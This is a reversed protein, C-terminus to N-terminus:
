IKYGKILYQEQLKRLTQNILKARAEGIGEVEDLEIVTASCVGQLTYFADVLNDIISIPMKPIKSLIRYGKTSVMEDLINPEMKYGLAKTVKEGSLLESLSLKRLVSLINNAKEERKKNKYIMYDEIIKKEEQEVGQMLQKLQIEILNGEVGLEIINRKVEGEMRIVVESRYIANTVVDLTVMDDIEQENLNSITYDLVTKYKELAELAQNARTIVTDPEDIVYRIDDKFLTIVGRRQSICIVLAGTQKAVREASKHRTGTESTKVKYDPVLEVNAKLIRKLDKSLIIAGDMKALEYIKAPNYEQNIEFGGDIIKSVSETEGIVILAGTKARLINELGERIATGPAIKKILELTSEDIM